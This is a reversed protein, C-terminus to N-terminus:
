IITIYNILTIEKTKTLCFVAYSTRMLSQLESTHEESRDRLTTPSPVTAAPERFFRGRRGHQFTRQIGEDLVAIFISRSIVWELRPKKSLLNLHPTTSRLCGPEYHWEVEFSETRFSSIRGHYWLDSSCVDSSLDSIRM